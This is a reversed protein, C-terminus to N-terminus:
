GRDYERAIDRVRMSEGIWATKIGGTPGHRNKEVSIEMVGQAMTKPNYVEDRYLTMIQDAEKEIESSDSMDGMHPRKCTRKDVERSVQALAVVPINLERALEKLGRVVSGVQEHRKEGEQSKIRQIYDVYLAKIRYTHVWKRAQRVVEVISIGSKDNICIGATAINSVSPTLRTWEDDSLKAARMKGISVGSGISIMRMGMQNYPQESSIIGVPVQAALAMNLMVATKGIAPRAGIVVLDSDHLGGLLNDLDAIGTKVTKDEGKLASEMMNIAANMAEKGSWEYRKADASLEMLSGVLTDIANQGERPLDKIAQNCADLARVKRWYDQIIKAYQAANVASPTNVSCDSLYAVWNRGTAKELADSVTVLDVPGTMDCDIVAQWVVANNENVFQSPLIDIGAMVSPNILVSGILSQEAQMARARLDTM